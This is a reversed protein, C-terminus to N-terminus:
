IEQLRNRLFNLAQMTARNRIENRTGITNIKEVTTRGGITIGVYVLGVPKDATGGDPGAIGTTSLGITTGATKAIGEAMAAATEPSVAGHTDLTEAPVGLRSIKAQNAYTVAGEMIVQSCGPVSVLRDMVLGGTCSEAVAITHSGAKALDVVVDALTKDIDTTYVHRAGLRQTIQDIVPASIEMAAEATDAAATIRLHLEGPKAYPAITPNTQAQIMDLLTTEVQSEGIGIIKMTTSHFIQRSQEGSQKQLFDIAYRDFMPIMESPPGPLLIAIKGDQEIVVGPASGFDNPLVMAGTPIIANKEVSERHLFDRGLSKFREVIRALSPQHVYLELGFYQAFVAKTIDDITPGLGGITIIIDATKYSETIADFLRQYNDGVTKKSYVPIGIGALGQAIHAANTDVINGLLLETGISLIEAKMQIDSM